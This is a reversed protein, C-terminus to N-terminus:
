ETPGEKYNKDIWSIDNVEKYEPIKDLLIFFPLTLLDYIATTSPNRLPLPTISAGISRISFLIM